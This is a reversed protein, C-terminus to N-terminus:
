QHVDESMSIPLGTWFRTHLLTLKGRLKPQDRKHIGAWYLVTIVEM